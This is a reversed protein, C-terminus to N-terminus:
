TNGVVIPSLTKRFTLPAAEPRTAVPMALANNRQRLDAALIIAEAMGHVLADRDYPKTVYAADMQHAAHKRDDSSEATAIIVPIDTSHQTPQGSRSGKRDYRIETLLQIGNLKPMDVDSLVLGIKCKHQQLLRLGEAGDEATLIDTYGLQNLIRAAAFRYTKADDVVLIKKGELGDLALAANRTRDALIANDM